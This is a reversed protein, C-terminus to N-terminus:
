MSEFIVMIHELGDLTMETGIFGVGVLVKEVMGFVIM